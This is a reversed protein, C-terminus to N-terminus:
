PRRRKWWRAAFPLAPALLLLGVIGEPVVTTVTLKSPTTSSDFYLATACNVADNPTVVDLQLRDNADFTEAGSLAFSRTFLAPGATPSTVAMSVSGMTSAPKGRLTLLHAVGSTGVTAATGASLASASTEVHDNQNVAVWTTATNAVDARETMGTPPSAWNDTGSISTTSAIAFSALSLEDIQTAIISPTTQAAGSTTQGNQADVPSAPDVNRYASIAGAANQGITWTWSAPDTGTAVLSYVALGMAPATANNTRQVLTWSGTFTITPNGVFAISAILVDNAIVGGSVAPKNIVLNGANVVGTTTPSVYYPAYTHKLTATVTCTHSAPKLSLQHTVALVTGCSARQSGTPWGPLQYGTSNFVNGSHAVNGSVNSAAGGGSSSAAPESDYFIGSCTTSTANFWAAIMQEYEYTGTLSPAYYQGSLSTDSAGVHQDVPNTTDVGSYAAINLAAKQATGSWSWSYSTEAGANTKWYVLLSLTTGNDIRDIRTWGAPVTISADTVGTGGRVGLHAIMVDSALTGAPKNAAISNAAGGAVNQASARFAIPPANDLYLDTQVTGAQRQQGAPMQDSVFRCTWNNFTPLARTSTGQVTPVAPRLAFNFAAWSTAANTDTSTPAMAGAPAFMRTSTRIFAAGGQASRPTYGAPPAITDVNNNEFSVAVNWAEDDVSTITTWSVAATAGTVQTPTVDAVGNLQVGFYADVVGAWNTASAITWTYSAPESSAIRYYLGQNTGVLANSWAAPKVITGAGASIAALMVDGDQVGAPVNVVLSTTATASNTASARYQIAPCTTSAGRLALTHAVGVTGASCTSTATRTGTGGISAQVADAGEGSITGASFVDVRENMGSPPTWTATATGCAASFHTVIMDNRQSTTVSPAAHDCPSGCAPTGQALEADIPNNPDVGSYRVMTAVVDGPASSNFTPQSAAGNVAFISIFVASTVSNTADTTSRVFRWQGNTTPSLSITVAGRWAVWAVMVDNYGGSGSIQITSVNTGTANATAKYTIAQGSSTYNQEIDLNPAAHGNTRALTFVSSNDTVAAAPVAHALFVVNTGLGLTFALVIATMRRRLRLWGLALVALPLATGLLAPTAFDTESAAGNAAVARLSLAGITLIGAAVFVAVAAAALHAARSSRKATRKRKPMEWPMLRALHFRELRETVVGSKPTRVWGGEKKESMAKMSAYAQFPALIWSLGIFSLLGLADRRLSGELLVGSLNMLPLALANSVVLSWGFVEGWMPLKQGLILVGIIWSGTAVAFLVSQLYYPAYYIFELKEQWSLNPSRLVPWFYKRVNYTHGEAWRMRQKILRRVTSVCEAPAQIYPTYLVKYGALYLRITLEWDETISTSWGLKRLVDARIMYVSGSIMKMAGFLEQGSRELVYSGSFEARVGKTIWNESANLMHWQYGQVAAVRDGNQPAGATAHESPSAYKAKALRGFYDLFHWIADAPPVFDADFIMVYETRSNMRRLAEQLAGGKFGKRSERHIVRVRPHSKWRELKQVTDDTSDDVVLVEYNEYDFSTCATLLRDIVESENYMALQVSVFPQRDAPLRIEGIRQWPDAVVVSGAQSLLDGRLTRYGEKHEGAALVDDAARGDAKRGGRAENTNPTSAPTNRAFRLPDGFLTVLVVSAITVYYKLAYLFFFLGCFLAFLSFAFRPALAEHVILGFGGVASLGIVLLVAGAYIRSLLGGTWIVPGPGNSNWARMVADQVEDLTATVRVLKLGTFRQVEHLATEDLPDVMALVGQHGDSATVVLGRSRAFDFPLLRAAAREVPDVLRPASLRTETPDIPAALEPYPSLSVVATGGARALVDALDQQSILGLRLITSAPSEHPNQRALLTQLQEDSLLRGGVLLEFARRWPPPLDGLERRLRLAAASAQIARILEDSPADKPVFATGGAALAADRVAPDASLFLLASDPLEATVIRALEIGSLGPLAHDLVILEPRLSRALALASPGDAAEGAASFGAQEALLARVAARVEDKEDAILVRIV